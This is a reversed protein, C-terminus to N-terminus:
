SSSVSLWAAPDLREILLENIEENVAFSRVVEGLCDAKALVKTRAM